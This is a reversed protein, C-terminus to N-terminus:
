GGCHDSNPVSTNRSIAWKGNSRVLSTCKAVALASGQPATMMAVFASDAAMRITTIVYTGAGGMAAALEPCAKGMQCIVFGTKRPGNPDSPTRELNYTRAVSDSLGELLRGDIVVGGFKSRPPIVKAAALLIELAEPETGKLTSAAVSPTAGSAPEPKAGCAALALMGFATFLLRM